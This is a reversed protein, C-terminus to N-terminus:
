TEYLIRTKSDLKRFVIFHLIPSWTSTNINMRNLAQLAEKINDHMGKLAAGNQQNINPQDFIQELYANVIMKENSYRDSLLKLAAEYNKETLSLNRVLGLAEGSLNQQLYVMKELQSIDKRSHILAKFLEVFPHWQRFDGDFIPCSIEPLKPSIKRIESSENDENIASEHQIIIDEVKAAAQFFLKHNYGFAKSHEALSWIEADM